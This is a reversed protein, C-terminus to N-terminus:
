NALRKAMFAYFVPKNEKTHEAVHPKQQPGGQNTKQDVLMKRCHKKMHGVKGCYHCTTNKQSRTGDEGSGQGKKKAWKGKGKVNAVFAHELGEAKTSSDFQKKWKDQQLLKNCLADFKLDVNTSTINLTEIFREYTHPLTKLTIVVM